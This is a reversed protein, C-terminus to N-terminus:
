TSVGAGEQMQPESGRQGSSRGNRLPPQGAGAGGDLGAAGAGEQWLGPLPSFSDCLQQVFGMRMKGSAEVGEGCELAQAEGGCGKGQRASM